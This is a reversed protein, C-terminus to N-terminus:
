EASLLSASSAANEQSGVTNGNGRAQRTQSAVSPSTGQQNQHRALADAILQLRDDANRAFRLDAQLDEIAGPPLLSRLAELNQEPPLDQALALTGNLLCHAGYGYMFIRTYLRYYSNRVSLGRNPPIIRNVIYALFTLECSYSSSRNSNTGTLMEAKAVPQALLFIMMPIAKQLKM